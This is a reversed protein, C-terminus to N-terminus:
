GPQEAQGAAHGGDRHARGLREDRRHDAHRGAPRPGAGPQYLVHRHGPRQDPDALQVTSQQDQHEPQLIQANLSSAATASRNQLYALAYDQACTTASSATSDTCSIQLVQSNTPVMVSVMKGLQYPTLSSHLMHGAITSVTGSTVLAAETQLNVSGSSGKGGSGQSAAIQDAGTPSVYVTATATYAKPALLIYALAGILCFATLVLVVWWRRRLVGVYNVSEFMSPQQSSSMGQQEKNKDGAAGHQHRV